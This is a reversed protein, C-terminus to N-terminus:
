ETVWVGLIMAPLWRLRKDAEPLGNQDTNFQLAAAMVICSNQTTQLLLSSRKIETAADRYAILENSFSQDIINKAVTDFSAAALLVNVSVTNKPAKIEQVPNVSAININLSGPETFLVSVMKKLVAYGGAKENFHFNEFGTILRGAQINGSQQKRLLDRWAAAAKIQMERDKAEPLLAIFAKRLAAGLKAGAGFIHASNKTAETQQVEEPKARICYTERLKYYIINDQTGAFKMNTQRGM